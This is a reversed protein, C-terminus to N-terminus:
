GNKSTKFYSTQFMSVINQANTYNMITHTLNLQSKIHLIFNDYKSQKSLTKPKPRLPRDKAEFIKLRNRCQLNQELKKGNTSVLKSFQM